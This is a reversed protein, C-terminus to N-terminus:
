ERNGRDAARSPGTHARRAGQRGGSSLVSRPRGLPGLDRSEDTAALREAEARALDALLQRRERALSREGTRAAARGVRASRRGRCRPTFPAQSKASRARGASPSGPRGRCFLTPDRWAHGRHRDLAMTASRRRRASTPAAAPTSTSARSRWWGSRAASDRPCSGRGSASRKWRTSRPAVSRDGPSVARIEEAVADELRRLEDGRAIRCRARHRVGVPGHSLGDDGLRISGLAVATLLHQGTHQQMHDFRRTWDLTQRVPGLPLEAGLFHRIVGDTKQVDIVEVGGMTGHDPPQGGGEPYFVTDATVAFFRGEDGGVEIVETELETLFSDRQYAPGDPTM